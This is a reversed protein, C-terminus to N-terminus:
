STIKRKRNILIIVPYIGIKETETLTFEPKYPNNRKGAQYKDGVIQRRERYDRFFMKQINSIGKSNRYFILTNKFM